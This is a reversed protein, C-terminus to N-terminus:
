VRPIVADKDPVLGDDVPDLGDLYAVNQALRGDATRRAILKRALYIGAVSFVIGSIWWNAIALEAFSKVSSTVATVVDVQTSVDKMKEIVDAAVDPTPPPAPPPVLGTDQVAGAAGSAVGGVVAGTTALDGTSITQSGKERLDKPQLTSAEPIYKRDDGFVAWARKFWRRRHELGNPRIGSTASGTNIYKSIALLDNQDAWKTLDGERWELLACRMLFVDDDMLDDTLEVGLKKAYKNFAYKGTTQFPGTGAYIYGDLSPWKKNGMRGGYSYAALKKPNRVLNSQIWADSYRRYRAPWVQRIRRVSTYNMNEKWIAGGNTEAGFQGLFHALSLKSHLVGAETFEAELALIAKIYGDRCKPAWKKLEARTPLPVNKAYQRPM